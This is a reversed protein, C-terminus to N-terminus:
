KKDEISFTYRGDESTFQNKKERQMQKFRASEAHLMRMVGHHERSPAGPECVCWSCTFGSFNNRVHYM